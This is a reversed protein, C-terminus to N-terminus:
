HVPDDPHWQHGQKIGPSIDQLKTNIYKDSTHLTHPTGTLLFPHFTWIHHRLHVQHGLSWIRTNIIINMNPWTIHMHWKQQWWVCVAWNYLFILINMSMASYPLHLGRPHWIDNDFQWIVGARPDEWTCGHHWPYDEMDRILFGWGGMLAWGWRSEGNRVCKKRTWVLDWIATLIVRDEGTLFGDELYWGELCM